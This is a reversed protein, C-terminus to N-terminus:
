LEKRRFIWIAAALLVIILAVSVAVPPWLDVIDAKAAVLGSELGSLSGPSWRSISGITGTASLVAFGAVALGGSIAQNGSVASSFLTLALILLAYVAYAGIGLLSTKLHLDDFLISTYYLCGLYSLSVSVLVLLGAAIFKATIFAVKSLPKTLVIVATGRLKEESISGMSMLIVVLLGLQNLNKFLQGWGDIGTPKPLVIHFDKVMDKLLDPTLKAMLPSMLGFALFAIPLIYIKSTRFIETVEKKFFAWAASL